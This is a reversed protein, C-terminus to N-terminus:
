ITLIEFLILLLGNDVRSLIYLEEAPLLYNYGYVYKINIENHRKLLILSRVPSSQCLLIIKNAM